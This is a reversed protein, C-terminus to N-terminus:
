IELRSKSLVTLGKVVAQARSRVELKRFLSEVHFKVTHQSIDLKRAIAKNSLGEGLAGLIEIERPTLLHQSRPEAAAGFGPGERLRVTLGAGLAAVAALIQAAPADPPLADAGAGDGLRLVVAHDPHPAAGDVVLLDAGGGDETVEHGGERLIAALMAKRAPDRAFAAVRLPPSAAALASLVSM